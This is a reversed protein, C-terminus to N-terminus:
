AGTRHSLVPLSGPSNEGGRAAVVSLTGSSQTESKFRECKTVIRDLGAPFPRPFLFRSVIAQVLIDAGPIFTRGGGILVLARIAPDKEGALLCSELLNLVASSLANVPPNEVTIVGAGDHNALNVLESM